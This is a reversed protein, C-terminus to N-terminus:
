FDCYKMLIFCKCNGPIITSNEGDQYSNFDNDSDSTENDKDQSSSQKRKLLKKRIASSEMACTCSFYLVVEEFSNVIEELEQRKNCINFSAINLDEEVVDWLCRIPIVLYKESITPIFFNKLANKITENRITRRVQRSM